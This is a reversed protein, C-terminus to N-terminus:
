QELAENLAALMTDIEDGDFDRENNLYDRILEADTQRLQVLRMSAGEFESSDAAASRVGGGEESIDRSSVM